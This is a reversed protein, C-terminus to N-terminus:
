AMVQVDGDLKREWPTSRDALRNPAVQTWNDVSLPLIGGQAIYLLKTETPRRCADDARIRARCNTTFDARRMRRAPYRAWRSVSDTSQRSAGRQVAATATTAAFSSRAPRLASAPSQAVSTLACGWAM